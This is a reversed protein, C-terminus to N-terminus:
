FEDTVSVVKIGATELFGIVRSQDPYLDNTTFVVRSVGSSAILKACELCPPGNVVLVGGRRRSPDSYLLAGAEAHQAICFGDGSTYSSGPPVNSSARPCGGDSCHTMGPPAGNYGIGVM